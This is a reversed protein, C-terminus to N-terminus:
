QIFEGIRLTQEYPKESIGQQHDPAKYNKLIMPFLFEFRFLNVLLELEDVCINKCFQALPMIDRIYFKVLEFREVINTYAYNGVLSMYYVVICKIGQRFGVVKVTLFYPIGYPM